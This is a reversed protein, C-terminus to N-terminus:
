KAGASMEQLPTARGDRSASIMHTTKEWFHPRTALQLLGKLGAASTMLWYVPSLLAAPALGGWGRRFPAAVALVAYVLNGAALAWVDAARMAEPLYRDIPAGAAGLIVVLRLAPAAVASVVTGGVFLQTTLLGKWGVVRAFDGINRSHVIWTQAYGKIWRSRQRIWNGLRCNAEEFTTSDIVETRWGRRALRLGLDADETVNFPDWGGVAFLVDKRFINSTGGLPIPLGLRQLGPLLTDFWLCYELAFLRTLWNERANYFALRAQVCALRPDSAAFAAAAKRLQDPEPEDEADYIVVLEGRAEALAYNCAKPKTQPAATPVITLDWVSALGLRGAAAITEADEAEL